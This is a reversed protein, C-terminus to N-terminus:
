ARNNWKAKAEKERQIDFEDSSKVMGGQGNCDQCQVACGYGCIFLNEVRLFINSSGCFPCDKLVTINIKDKLERLSASLHEEGDIVTFWKSDHEDYVIKHNNYNEQHIM